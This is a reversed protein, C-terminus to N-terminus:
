LQIFPRPKTIVVSSTKCVPCRFRWEGGGDERPVLVSLRMQLDCITCKPTPINSEAPTQM